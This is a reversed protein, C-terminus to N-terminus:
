KKKLVWLALKSIEPFNDKLKMVMDYAINHFKSGYQPQEPFIYKPYVVRTLYEYIGFTKYEKIEFLSSLLRNTPELKFDLNYEVKPLQSLDTQLRLKNLEERGDHSGEMMLFMGGESLHSHINRIANQQEEWNLINILCRQTIIKTFKRNLNFHRADAQVFKINNGTVEKTARKIMEESFDAGVIEKVKNKFFASSYGNGCGLDLLVDDSNIYTLLTEIEFKRQVTDFHTIEEASKALRARENWHELTEKM